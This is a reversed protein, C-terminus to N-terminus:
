NAWSCIEMNCEYYKFSSYRIFYVEQENAPLQSVYFAGLYEQLTLHLFTYIINKNRGYLSSSHKTLLGLVSCGSPLEKFIVEEKIRGFFAMKGLQLLQDWTSPVRLWTWVQQVWYNTVYPKM